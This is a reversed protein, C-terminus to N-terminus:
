LSTGKEIGALFGKTFTNAILCMELASASFECTGTSNDCHILSWGNQKYLIWSERYNDHFFTFLGDFVEAPITCTTRPTNNEYTTKM